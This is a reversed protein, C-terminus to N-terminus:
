VIKHLDKPREPGVPVYFPGDQAHFSSSFFYHPTRSFVSSLVSGSQCQTPRRQLVEEEESCSDEDPIRLDVDSRGRAEEGICVREGGMIQLLLQSRAGSHDGPIM